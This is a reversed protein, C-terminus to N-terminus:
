PSSMARSPIVPLSCLRKSIVPIDLPCSPPNTFVLELEAPIAWVVDQLAEPGYPNDNMLRLELGSLGLDVGFMEGTLRGLPDANPDRATDFDFVVQHGRVQEGTDPDMHAYETELKTRADIAYRLVTGLRPYRSAMHVASEDPQHRATLTFVSGAPVAASSAELTALTPYHVEVSGPDRTVELEIGVDVLAQYTAVMGVNFSRRAPQTPRPGLGVGLDLDLDVTYTRTTTDSGFPNDFCGNSYDNTSIPLLDGLRYPERNVREPM